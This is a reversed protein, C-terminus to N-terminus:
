YFCVRGDEDVYCSDGQFAQWENMLQTLEKIYGPVAEGSVVRENNTLIPLSHELGFQEHAAAPDMIVRDYGLVLDHFEAEIADAALSNEQRYLKLM